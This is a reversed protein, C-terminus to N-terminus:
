PEWVEGGTDWGLLAYPAITMAVRDLLEPPPLGDVALEGVDDGHYTIPTRVRLSEDASGAQPGLVLAGEERFLIGAWAIEPQRALLAVVARLADDADGAGALVGDLEELVSSSV